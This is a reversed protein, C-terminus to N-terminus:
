LTDYSVSVMVSREANLYDWGSFNRATTYEKDLVNEVVVRGTWNKAFQWGARLDLLGFGSLRQTNAADNYRHGQFSATGGLSFEGIQRDVDLRGMRQARRAIITENEEDEPKLASFALRARWQQWELGMALEAGEVTAKEVNGPAMVVPDYSILDDINSRYLAADWYWVSYQGRMGVEGTESSEPKLEANGFGPYYLDNFTPAKFATGYSARVRHQRDLKYGVAAAGTVKSGFADNDDHRLSGQLDLPGFNLLAQGFAAKNDRRTEDYENDSTIEDGQYEGGVIFQHDGLLFTNQLNATRTRTDFIGNSLGEAFDESEDKAQSLLAKVQWNESVWVDGKLGAVELMFDTDRLDEPAGGEYESNGEARFGFVGVSGADGFQHRIKVIGSTNDYGRDESDERLVTGDTDFYNAGVTATTGGHTLSSGAGLNWTNFTGGAANLWTGEDRTFVQVVGGVADAGYLSGRPGRVIEVRQMMQPPLYQWAPSGATASRLRVGDVLLLTSDSSTGRIFVSANKGFSGNGTTDIGPQGRLLDAMDVPQQERLTVEDVVTVSSLTAEATQSTLTPTVVVPDLMAYQEGDASSDSVAALPLLSFTAAAGAALFRFTM